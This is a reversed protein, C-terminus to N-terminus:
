NITRMAVRIEKVQTTRNARVRLDPRIEARRIWSSQGAPRWKLKYPGVPINRLSYRGDGGTTALLEGSTNMTYGTWSKQLPVLTVECNALPRGYHSLRGNVDGGLHDPSVSHPSGQSGERVLRMQQGDINIVLYRGDESWSGDADTNGNRSVNPTHNRAGTVPPLRVVEDSRRHLVSGSQRRSQSGRRASDPVNADGLPPRQSPRQATQASVFTPALVSLMGVSVLRAWSFKMM